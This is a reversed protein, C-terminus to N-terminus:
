RDVADDERLENPVIEAFMWHDDTQVHDKRVWKAVHDQFDDYGFAAVTRAVYGEQRDVDIEIARVSEADWPGRYLQPPTYLGLLEAWELTEDWGLCVNDATWVSFLYFYSELDEYAISHRAYVNEGCLRWGSPIQHAIQGHLRKVWDRSPHHRSDISRAHIHDRYMTTNEGDLKETVVVEEGHFADAAELIVDDEDAGPSWPLHPTRPYKHYSASM